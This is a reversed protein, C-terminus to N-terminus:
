SEGEWQFFVNNLSEALTPHSFIADRLVTFKLGGMMALQIASAVEGGEIGLIAAGLIQESGADVVIKMVGRSEATELARAVYTMPMKAIRIKRGQSRAETETMGIRGLQPDIFVTYPLMRDRITRNGKQLLNSAIVRYDDYSIHTFAPGGKTDGLAYIGEINTELRDNVKIYGHDDAEIGAAHLNLRETNPVRGTAVLLHSGNLNKGNKLQLQIAGPKGSVQTTEANFHIEIGDERLIKAVEEAIDPDEKALLQPGNHIITVESGFRRFMQAFELGIYGGGLVLLHEPVSDLEMISVNDLTSVDKIGAIPPLSSRVGTNVFILSAELTRQGGNNLAISVTKPGTFSGWGEILDLNDASRLRKESSERFSKVIERKRDRVKSMDMSISGTSVGYDAARKALYAVRGSAVMTKTPTCGENICTGGVHKGEIIATKKGAKAFAGALPGGAQGSGLIIADFHETTVTTDKCM